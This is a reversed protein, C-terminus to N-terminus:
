SQRKKRMYENFIDFIKQALGGSGQVGSESITIKDLVVVANIEPIVRIAAPPLNLEKQLISAFEEADFAPGELVMIESIRHGTIIVRHFKSGESEAEGLVVHLTNPDYGLLIGTYTKGDVLRISIRKNVLKNLEAVINRPSPTYSMYIVKLDKVKEAVYKM